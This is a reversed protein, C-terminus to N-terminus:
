SRRIGGLITRIVRRATVHFDARFPEERLVHWALTKSIAFPPESTVAADIEGSLVRPYLGASADRIIHIKIRPYAKVLASLIDPVLGPLSTQM